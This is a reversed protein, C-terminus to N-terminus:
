QMLARYFQASTPGNTDTVTWPMSAPSNTIFPTWDTLTSSRLIVYDPGAVGQVTMTWQGDIVSVPVLIIPGAARVIVSFAKVDTLVPAGDDAVQVAIVNTSASQAVTPRWSVVGSLADIHAGEPSSVLTFTLRNPPIDVDTASTTISLREGPNITYDDIAALVPANNARRLVISFTNTASLAPMGDDTVVTTFTNTSSPNGVSPAWTIVGSSDIAAGSPAVLLRYSLRNAPVDADAATNTVVLETLGDITADNLPPLMPPLNVETVVVDFANTASLPPIGDDTVVTVVTNTSPGQAETPTWTVVGSSDISAGPPGTLLFYALGNGPVDLDTATNTVILQALENVTRNSQHPLVPTSNGRATWARGSHQADARFMPWPAEAAPAGGYIAYLTPDSSGVYITGDPGITPSAQNDGSRIEKSWKAVGTLADLASFKALDLVYLTHDAALAPSQSANGYGTKSWNANGTAANLSEARGGVQYNGSYKVIYLTGAADIAPASVFMWSSITKVAKGTIGDVVAIGPFTYVRSDAGVCLWSSGSSAPVGIESWKKTGTLPDLGYLKGSDSAAYVTRDPGIVPADFMGAATFEWKAAGTAGDLAYVKGNSGVYVTGDLGIAPASSLVKTQWKRVGTLADLAYMPQYFWVSPATYITGFAGVALTDCSYLAATEWKKAGTVGDLSYIKSDGGAVYVTGDSGLAPSGAPGGTQFTWRLEGPRPARLTLTASNSTVPGGLTNQVDVTYDGTDEPMVGDLTLTAAHVGVVRDTEELAIGDRRWQYTFPTTGSVHVTFVATTGRIVAVSQPGRGIVPAGEVSYRASHRGDRGLMPWVGAAPGSTGFVAYLNKDSSGVYITGDLGIMPATRLRAGTLFESRKAGTSTDVEWLSGDVVVYLIGDAALAPPGKISGGTSLRWKNTGSRGDIAHLSGDGSTVYLTGDPGIVPSSTDLGSLGYAWKKAGSALDLAYLSLDWSKFYVLGEAGIAPSGQVVKGGTLFEWRKAGTDPDLAYLKKDETGVYVTGDPGIAPCSYVGAGTVFEWKTAGTTSNLASVKKTSSGVYVTGDSGIAPSSMTGDARSLGWKLTGNTADFASVSGHNGSVLITGDDAVSPSSFDRDAAAAWKRVGTAGDVAYLNEDDSRLYVTGDLGIAPTVAIMGGTQFKWRLEGAVPARVTLEAPASTVVAAPANSVVVSYQGVDDPRLDVIQLVSCLVGLFRGGEVLDIGDKRWQYALPKTGGAVVGFRVQAGRTGEAPAPQSLIVASGDVVFRGTHRLDRGRMPWPSNALPATGALAYVTGDEGGIFVSGDAGIAPSSRFGYKSPKVEWKRSGTAADLAYLTTTSGVYITGDAAVAPSGFAFGGDAAFEWKKLGTTGDVAYVRQDGSGFYVTGDSAIAPSCSISDGTEVEWKKTGLAGDLAYLKSDLSGAYVMGDMGITPPGNITDGTLFEWKEHGDAGDLAYVKGDRSGIYITGDAGVVPSSGLYDDAKFEWRKVGTSGDLAYLSFHYGSSDSSGIYVTGDDALAPSTKNGRYPPAFEWKKVGSASDLAYIPGKDSAFYVMGDVSLAPAATIPGTTTFQWKKAGTPGDLAYGNKDSSGIYVTGDPGVAPSSEIGGGTVYEWLKDGPAAFASLNIALAFLTLVPALRSRGPDDWRGEHGALAESAPVSTQPGHRKPPQPQIPTPTLCERTRPPNNDDNM